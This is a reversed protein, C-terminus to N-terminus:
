SLVFHRFKRGMILQRESVLREYELKEVVTWEKDKDFRINNLEIIRKSIEEIKQEMNFAESQKITTVRM